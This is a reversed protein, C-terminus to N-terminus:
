KHNFQSKCDSWYPIKFGTVTRELFRQEVQDAELAEKLMLVINGLKDPRLAWNWEVSDFFLGLVVGQTSPGFCTDPNDRCALEVGLARCVQQYTTDFRHTLGSGAPSAGVVDDLYQCVLHPPLGSLQIATFLM